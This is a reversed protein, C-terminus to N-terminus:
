RERKCDPITRRFFHLNMKQKGYRYIIENSKKIQECNMYITITVIVLHKMAGMRTVFVRKSQRSQPALMTM